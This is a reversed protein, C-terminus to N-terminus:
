SAAAAASPQERAGASHWRWASEIIEDLGRRARWGLVHEARSADAWVAAPDGPRRDVYRVRLPQGSTRRIAHIVENVSAGEGTGLNLVESGGGGALHRVAAEHADALDDVHVYDRVATGDPTPYDSGFAHLEEDLAAARMAVPILNAADTWDEGFRGDASAGAANFYRLSVFRIGRCRDFWPLMREVMAKSEGYPSEPVLPSTEVVPLSKPPGYVSASSSFVLASVEHDAMAGLVALTGSTNTDFYRDPFLNSEAVSKLGAVHIVSRVRHRGIVRSVGARDRVDVTEHPAGALAGPAPEAIDLGIPATGAAVLRRVIASGIYGSSGTVLVPELEKLTTFM